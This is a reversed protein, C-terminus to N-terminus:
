EWKLKIKNKSALPPWFLCLTPFPAFCFISLLLTLDNLVQVNALSIHTHIHTLRHHFDCVAAAAFVFVFPIQESIRFVTHLHVLRQSVSYYVFNAKIRKIQVTLIQDVVQIRKTCENKYAQRVAQMLDTAAALQQWVTKLSIFYFLLFYM